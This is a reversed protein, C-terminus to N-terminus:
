NSKTDNEKETEKKPSSSSADSATSAKKMKLKREKSRKEAKQRLVLHGFVSTYISALGLCGLTQFLNFKIFFLVLIGIMSCLSIIFLVGFILTKSNYFLGNINIGIKNWIYILYIWPIFMLCFVFKAFLKNPAKPEPKFIHPQDPKPYFNPGESEMLTPAKNPDPKTEPISYKVEIDGFEYELPIYDKKPSSFRVIMSYDGNDVKVDKLNLRYNGEDNSEFIYSNQSKDNSLYFMAQEIQNISKEKNDKEILKLSIELHDMNSYTIKNLKEPYNLRKDVNNEGHVKVKFSEFDMAKKCFACQLLLAAYIIFIFQKM